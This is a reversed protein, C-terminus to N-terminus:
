LTQRPELVQNVLGIRNGAAQDRKSEKVSGRPGFCPKGKPRTENEVNGDVSQHV